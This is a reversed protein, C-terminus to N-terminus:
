CELYSLGRTGRFDTWQGPGGSTNFLHAPESVAHLKATPRRQGTRRGSGPSSAIHRSTVDIKVLGRRRGFCYNTKRTTLQSEEERRQQQQQQQRGEDKDDDDYRTTKAGNTASRSEGSARYRGGRAGSMCNHNLKINADSVSRTNSPRAAVRRPASPRPQFWILTPRRTRCLDHRRPLSSRIGVTTATARVAGDVSVAHYHLLQRRHTFTFPPPRVEVSVSLLALTTWRRSKSIQYKWDWPM